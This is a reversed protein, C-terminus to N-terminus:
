KWSNPLYSVKIKSILDIIQFFHTQPKWNKLTRWTLIHHPFLLIKFGKSLNQTEAITVQEAMVCYLRNEDLLVDFTETPVVGKAWSVCNVLKKFFATTREQLLNPTLANSFEKVTRSSLLFPCFIHFNQFCDGWCFLIRVLFYITWFRM